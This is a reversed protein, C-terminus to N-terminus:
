QVVVEVTKRADETSVRTDQPTCELSFEIRDYPYSGTIHAFYTGKNGQARGTRISTTEYLVCEKTASVGVAAWAILLSDGREVRDVPQASLSIVPHVIYSSVGPSAQPPAPTPAPSPEQTTAPSAASGGFFGSLLSLTSALSPNGGFNNYYGPSVWREGGRNVVGSWYGDNPSWGGETPPMYALDENLYPAVTHNYWSAHKNVESRQLSGFYNMMQGQQAVETYARLVKEPDYVDAPDCIGYRCDSGANCFQGYGYSCEGGPGRANGRFGSEQATLMTLCAAWSGKSGDQMGCRYGWSPMTGVLGAEEAIEGARAAFHVPDVRGNSLPRIPAETLWQKTDQLTIRGTEITFGTATSIPRDELAGFYDPASPLQKSKQEAVALRAFKSPSFDPVYNEYGKLANRVIGTVKTTNGTAISELLKEKDSPKINSELTSLHEKPFGADLLAKRLQDDTLSPLSGTPQAREVNYADALSRLSKQVAQGNGNKLAASIGGVLDVKDKSLKVGCAQTGDKGFTCISITGLQGKTGCSSVVMISGDTNVIVQDNTEAHGLEPAKAPSEDAKIVRIATNSAQGQQEAPYEKQVRDIYEECEEVAAAYLFLPAFFALCIIGCVLRM